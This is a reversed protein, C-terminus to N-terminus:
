LPGTMGLPFWGQINKPLASPSASTRTSQGHSTFLQSIPFSRSAPLSQPCSSLPHYLILHNSPMVSAISMLKLLSRSNTISLSAQHAATWAYLSLQKLRTWSQAVGYVAAWWAGRDVPNELCSYQLPNGNGERTSCDMPNCLPLCLQTVSCCSCFYFCAFKNTSEWSRRSVPPLTGFLIGEMSKPSSHTTHPSARTSHLSPLVTSFDPERRSGPASPPAGSGQPGSSWANLTSFGTHRTFSSTVCPMKQLTLVWVM